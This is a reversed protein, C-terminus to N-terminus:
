KGCNEIENNLQTKTIDLELAKKWNLVAENCRGERKLIYGYHEYWVADPSEGKEIISEMVKAAEDFKGRKYLVWGYTDLYTTNDGERDIVTKAMKEAEKLKMNQEALYYAYNNLVTLDQNDQKLIDDFTSFAKDFDKMRYYADARMTLVEILNEKKDDTLIEAKKLEELAIDYKGLELAGNAYFLKAVFSTNFRTACEEGRKFLMQYNKTQLYLVLLKEWPYYNEPNVKIIDELRAIADNIKNQKLLLEPRLMPVIGDGRYNAELIMLTVTLRDGYKDILDKIDIIRAMLAIKNEVDIDTNLAVNNVLTLLDDYQKESILFDCAAMQVQPNKPNEELLKKYVDFAKDSQGLGKYVDALLGNYLIEDPSIKLLSNIKELAENYKNEAILSRTLAVTSTENVGYKKDLAGFIEGAKRFNKNESYLNGLTILLNEKEPYAKAAKEYYILASDINKEQYYVGSLMTLYWINKDDISIAKKLYKKCNNADGSGLLIQAMQYYSADSVPNMKVCQEFYRLADGGNGLLKQKVAEVYIYGFEATNLNPTKVDSSVAPSVKKTCSSTILGAIILIFLLVYNRRM